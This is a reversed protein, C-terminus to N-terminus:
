AVDAAMGGNIGSAENKDEEGALEEEPPPFGSNPVWDGPENEEDDEAEELAARAGDSVSAASV